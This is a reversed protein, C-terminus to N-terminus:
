QVDIIRNAELKLCIEQNQYILRYEDETKTVMVCIDDIYYENLNTKDVHKFYNIVKARNIIESELRELNEIVELYNRMTISYTTVISVIIIFFILIFSSIFAKAKVYLM